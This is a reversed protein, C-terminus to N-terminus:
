MTERSYLILESASKHFSQLLGVSQLFDAAYNPHLEVSEKICFTRQSEAEALQRM